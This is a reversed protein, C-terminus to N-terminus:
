SFVCTFSIFIFYNSLYRRNNNVINFILCSIGALIGIASLGCMTLFLGLSVMRLVPMQMTRDPPPHGGTLSLGLTLNQQQLGHTRVDVLTNFDTTVM